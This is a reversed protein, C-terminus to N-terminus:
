QGVHFVFDIMEMTRNNKVDLKIININRINEKEKTQCYVFGHVSERPYLVCDNLKKEILNTKISEYDKSTLLALPIATIPSIIVLPTLAFQTNRMKIEEMIIPEKIGSASSTPTKTSDNMSGFLIHGDAKFYVPDNGNNEIVVMIPLIGYSLLDLSFIKEVQESDFLPEIAVTLGKKNQSFNYEAAHKFSVEQFKAACGITGFIFLLHSMFKLFSKM